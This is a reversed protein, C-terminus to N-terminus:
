TFGPIDFEDVRLRKGTRLPPENRTPNWNKNIPYGESISRNLGKPAQPHPKSSSQALPQPIPVTEIPYNDLNIDAYDLTDDIDSFNDFTPDPLPTTTTLKQIPKQFTTNGESKFNQQNTKNTPNAKFNQQNTTNTPNPKFSQQNTTNTPNPKFNNTNAPNPKFNQQNSINTPNVTNVTNVTNVASNVPNVAPNVACNVSNV